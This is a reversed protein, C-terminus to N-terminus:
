LGLAKEIDAIVAKKTRGSGSTKIDLKHRFIFSRVDNDMHPDSDTAEMIRIWEDAATEQPQQASQQPETHRTNQSVNMLPPAEGEAATELNLYIFRFFKIAGENSEYLTKALKPLYSENIFKNSLFQTSVKQSADPVNIASLGSDSLIRNTVEFFKYANMKQLLSKNENLWRRMNSLDGDIRKKQEPTVGIVAKDALRQSRRVTQGEEEKRLKLQQERERKEAARNLREQEEFEMQQKRLLDDRVTDRVRQQQARTWQETQQRTGKRSEGPRTPIRDDKEEKEAFAIDPEKYEEELEERRGVNTRTIIELSADLTTNDQRMFEKFEEKYQQVDELGDWRTYLEKAKSDDPITATLSRLIQWEFFTRIYDSTDTDESDINDLVVESQGKILDELEPHPIDLKNSSALVNLHKGNEEARKMNVLAIFSIFLAELDSAGKFRRAGYTNRWDPVALRAGSFQDDLSGSM